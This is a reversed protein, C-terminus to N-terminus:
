YYIQENQVGLFIGNFFCLPTEFTNFNYIMIKKFKYSLDTEKKFYTYVTGVSIFAHVYWGNWM